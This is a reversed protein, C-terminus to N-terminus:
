KSSVSKKQIHHQLAHAPSSNAPVYAERQARVTATDVEVTGPEDTDFSAGSPVLYNQVSRSGTHGVRIDLRSPDIGKRKVLYATANVARQAALRVGDKETSASSGVLVAKADADRELNLAVIDLCVKGANDVRAPHLADRDFNMVCLAETKPAPPPTPEHITVSTNASVDQGKDDAVNCSVTIIGPAVGATTLTATNLTATNAIGHIQGSSASYSFTLPRNQPSVGQATITASGGPEVTLPNATCAVTPPQFPKVTFTANGDASQGAKEGETVHNTVTYTGPDLNATNVNTSPKAGRVKVRTASWSYVIRSSKKADLNLANCTISVLEGAYVEAPTASCADTVPLSPQLGGVHYVLGTSLQAANINATGGEINSNPSGFSAHMYQYDAQFIRWSLHNGFFPLLYDLGGGVTLSPGWTYPNVRNVPVGGVTTSFNPGGIRAGGVLFHAFPTLRDKPYRVIPGVALTTFGDGSGDPHFDAGVEGGLFKNFYYAGSGVAGAPVRSYSNGQINGHPALFSYGAFLDMRSPDEGIATVPKSGFASQAMLASTGPELICLLLFLGGFSWLRVRKM